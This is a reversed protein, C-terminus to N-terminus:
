NKRSQYSFRSTGYSISNYLISIMFLGFCFFRFFYYLKKGRAVSKPMNKHLRINKNSKRFGSKITKPREVEVNLNFSVNKEKEKSEGFQQDGIRSDLYIGLSIM